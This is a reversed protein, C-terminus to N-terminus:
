LNDRLVYCHVVPYYSRYKGSPIRGIGCFLRRRNSNSHNIKGHKKIIRVMVRRKTAEWSFLCGM